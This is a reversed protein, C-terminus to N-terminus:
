CPARKTLVAVWERSPKKLPSVPGPHVEFGAAEMTAHWWAGDQVILHANRGDAMTKNSERTAIVVFVAKRALLMLHALVTALKEPEVHELVDTSVVLDAFEPLANIAPMAPDYESVRISSPLVARLAKGLSGEGAGYDLVSSAQYQTVLAAVGQAWKDGKGGYGNPRGHLEEQLRIYRLSALDVQAFM